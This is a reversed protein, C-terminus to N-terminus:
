GFVHKSLLNWAKEKIFATVKENQVALVGEDSLEKLVEQIDAPEKGTYGALESVPDQGTKLPWEKFFYLIAMLKIWEQTLEELVANTNKIRRSFEKLM